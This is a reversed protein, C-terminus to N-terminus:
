GGQALHQGAQRRASFRGISPEKKAPHRLFDTECLLQSRIQAFMQSWEWVQKKAFVEYYIELLEKAKM